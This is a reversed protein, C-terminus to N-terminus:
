SITIAGNATGVARVLYLTTSISTIEINDGLAATGSVFTLTNGTAAVVSTVDNVITGVFTAAAGAVTITVTNSAPGTLYFNYTCGPGTTPSPLDIDYAAAQSVSFVGGSDALTLATTGTIAAATTSATRLGLTAAVGNFTLRDASQDWTVNASATDGYLVLDMGAGDVGFDIASNTTLQAILLKTANWSFTIDGAAGAGTGIALKANDNFLLQDNSQDWTMNYTATDGYFVHNIGAGSVGWDISSDATTQAVLLKTANWTINIDGLTGPGATNTGFGLFVNDELKLSDASADWSIYTTAANGYLWLDFSNTGNGIKLILDDAAGLIDFDTGDWRMEVDGATGLGATAGTGFMLSVSDEFKLDNASADWSIYNAAASGFLRMDWSLTGNGLDLRTNTVNPNLANGTLPLRLTQGFDLGNAIDTFTEQFSM